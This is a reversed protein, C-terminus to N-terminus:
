VPVQHYNEKVRCAFWILEHSLIEENLNFKLSVKRIGISRVMDRFIM